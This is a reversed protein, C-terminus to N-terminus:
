EGADRSRSRALFARVGARCAETTRATANVAAGRHLAEEFSMGDIDYLLGKTLETASVPRSALDRVYARAEDLFTEDDFIRQVLGLSLAEEARVRHGRTALEFAQGEGVKRRLIAMVMAPVFGLHVEPYGFQASASALVIDCATALGCGGALAKGHVAAIIPRPHQRMSVFLDALRTADALSEEAGMETIRELDALDAGSCFDKGAGEILVVHVDPDDRTQALAHTLAEVLAANLANRKEPRQLTLTAVGGSVEVDLVDSM